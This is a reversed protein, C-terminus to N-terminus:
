KARVKRLTTWNGWVKDGNDLTKYARVQVYYYVGSKRNKITTSTKTYENEKHTIYKNYYKDNRGYKVQYKTAGKVKTILVKVKGKSPSTVKIVPKNPKVTIKIEKSAPNYRTTGKTAVTIKAIGTGIIEVEGDSSVKAVSPDSSTYTFGTGDGNATATIRFNSSTPYRTYKTYKTKVTQDLGDIIFEKTVTGSYKGMGKIVVSATGAVRNNDYALTYDTNQRLTTYKDTVTVTPYKYSGDYTYKTPSLKITCDNISNGTITFYATQSGTYGNTGTVTVSATGIEKNNKYSVIYYTSPVLISGNYVKVTPTHAYGTYKYSTQSLEVRCNAMSTGNLVVNYGYYYGDYNGKGRLTINVASKTTNNTYSYSSVYYDTGRVLARGNTDYLTFDPMLQTNTNYSYDGIPIDAMNSSMSLRANSISKPEITYYREIKGAYKGAGTVIVKARKSEVTSTTSANVDNVYSVTYDTYKNLTANGIKVTVTPQHSRGDYIYKPYTGDTNTYVGDLTVQANSIDAGTSYTKSLKGTFNPSSGKVTVTVTARDSSWQPAEYEFDDPTSLEKGNFTVKPTPIKDNPVKSLNELAVKSNSQGIDYSKISFDADATGAYGNQGTVIIKAGGVSAKYNNDYGITYATNPLPSSNDKLWVSIKSKDFVKAGGDYEFNAPNNNDKIEVGNYKIIADEISIGAQFPIQFSGEKFNKKQSTLTVYYPGSIGTKFSPMDGILFDSDDVAVGKYELAIQGTTPTTITTNSVPLSLQRNFDFDEFDAQGISFSGAETEGSYNAGDGVIKVKVTGADINNAKTNASAQSVVANGREYSLTCGAKKLTDWTITTSSSKQEVAPITISEIYPEIASGTYTYTKGQELNVTANAILIPTAEGGWIVTPIMCVVMLVSLIIALTKKM